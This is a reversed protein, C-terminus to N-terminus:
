CDRRNLEKPSPFPLGSWSEQRSFGMSMPFQCGVTSPIAITACSKASDKKRNLSKRFNKILLINSCRNMNKKSRDLLSYVDCSNLSVMERMNHLANFSVALLPMEANEIVSLILGNRHINPM